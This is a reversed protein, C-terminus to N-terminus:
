YLPKYQNRIGELIANAVVGAELKLENTGIGMLVSLKADHIRDDRNIIPLLSEFIDKARWSYGEVIKKASRQMVTTIRGKGIDDLYSSPSFTYRSLVNMLYNYEDNDINRDAAMVIAGAAATFSLEIKDQETLPVRTITSILDEMKKEFAPDESIDGKNMISHWIRSEHFLRLAQIRVPYSPHSAEIVPHERIGDYAKEAADLLDDLGANFYKSNIGCSLRFLARVSPEIKKSAILGIRDASIESIKEWADFLKQFFPPRQSIDPYIFEVTKSVYSHNFILHGIEHGVIFILEERTAKEIVPGNIIIAHPDSDNQSVISLCNFEKEDTVWFAISDKAFGLDSAVSQFLSYLDPFLTKRVSVCNDRLFNSIHDINSRNKIQLLSNIAKLNVANEFFDLLQEEERERIHAFNLIVGMKKNMM